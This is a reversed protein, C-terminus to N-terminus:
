VAETKLGREMLERVALRPSKGQHLIANMQETIPMEVGHRAALEVAARTTKVGEAVMKMSTVIEAIPKGRGLELGVGRNRSLEGYCTLVLDGLGSLGALTLPSAGEAVALRTMEALGRTVLAALPNSGLGLGQCIGAGLAIVNKLAGGLEVGTLDPNTYFRLAPGSFAQQVYAATDADASAIIAAAPQGQAIERAFTPGSLVAIRAQPLGAAIVQSMRLLTGNELGKTASVVIAGPAAYPKLAAYVARAHHSPMVGLIVPANEVAEGLSPTVHVNAPLPFAPLYVDNERSQRMRAALDPEHVWLRVTEFRPSLAIALATGWSGGGAIALTM